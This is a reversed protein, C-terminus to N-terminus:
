IYTFLCESIGPVDTAPPLLALLVDNNFSGQVNLVVTVWKLQCVALQDLNRLPLHLLQQRSRSLFSSLDRWRM